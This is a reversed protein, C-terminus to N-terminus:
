MQNALEKHAQAAKALPLFCRHQQRLVEVTLGVPAEGLAPLPRCKGPLPKLRALAARPVRM